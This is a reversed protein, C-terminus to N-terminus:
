PKARLKALASKSVCEHELCIGVYAAKNGISETLASKALEMNDIEINQLIENELHMSKSMAVVFDDRSHSHMYFIGVNLVVSVIFAVSLIMKTRDM